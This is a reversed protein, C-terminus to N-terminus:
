PVLPYIRVEEVDNEDLQVGLLRDAQIRLLTFGRPMTVEGLRRGDADFVRWLATSDGPAMFDQAWLRGVTDVLLAAIMPLTEPVPLARLTRERAQRQPGDPMAGVAREVYADLMAPISRRPTLDLRLLRLLQGDLGRYELEYSDRRQAWFGGDAAAAIFRAAFPPVFIDIGRDSINIVREDGPLRALEMGMSGDPLMLSITSSDRVAGNGPLDGASGVSATRVLISGGPQVGLPRPAVGQPPQYSRAVGGAPDLVTFRRNLRDFAIVSDGPLLSIWDLAEFEGPGGGKGGVTRLLEGTATYYRLQSSGSNAVVITGDSLRLVGTVRFLPDDDSGGLTLSPEAGVHFPSRESEGDPPSPNEVLTVGASDRAVTAAAQGGDAGSCAPIIALMGLLAVLALPARRTPRAPM